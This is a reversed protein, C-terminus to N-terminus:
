QPLLLNGALSAIFGDCRMNVIVGLVNQQELLASAESLMSPLQGPSETMAWLLEIDCLVAAALM